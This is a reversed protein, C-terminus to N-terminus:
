GNSGQPYLNERNQRLILSFPLFIGIETSSSSDRWPDLLTPIMDVVTWAMSVARFRNRKAALVNPTVGVPGLQSGNRFRSYIKIHGVIDYWHDRIAVTNLSEVPENFDEAEGLMDAHHSVISAELVSFQANACSRDHEGCRTSLILSGLKVATMAFNRRTPLFHGVNHVTHEDDDVIEIPMEFSRLFASRRNQRIDFRSFETPPIAGFIKFTM